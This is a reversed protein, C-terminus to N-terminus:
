NAGASLKMKEKVDHALREIAGAKRIVNLSLTDKSTKDVEAKLDTALKLLRASDDAIQKKREANTAEANVSPPQVDDAKQAHSPQSRIPSSLDQQTGARLPSLLLLGGCFLLGLRLGQQERCLRRWVCNRNESGKM